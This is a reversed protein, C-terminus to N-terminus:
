QIVFHNKAVELKLEEQNLPYLGFTQLHQTMILQSNQEDTTAPAEQISPKKSNLFEYMAEAINIPMTGQVIEDAIVRYADNRLDECTRTYGLQAAIEQYTSSLVDFMESHQFRAATALYMVQEQLVYLELLEPKNLEKMHKLLEGYAATLGYETCHSFLTDYNLNIEAPKNKLIAQLALLVKEQSFSHSQIEPYIVAYEKKENEIMIVYFIAQLYNETSVLGEGQNANNLIIQILKPNCAFAAFELSGSFFEHDFTWGKEKAVDFVATLLKANQAVVQHKATKQLIEQNLKRLFEQIENDSKGDFFNILATYEQPLRM